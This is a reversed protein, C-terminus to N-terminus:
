ITFNISPRLFKGNSHRVSGYSEKLPCGCAGTMWSTDKIQPKNVELQYQLRELPLFTGEWLLSGATHEQMAAWKAAEDTVKNGKAIKDEGKQHGRCHTVSVKKPLLVADLLVIIDHAHKIPSGTTILMRREKWIGAHTHLILFTYKSDIYINVRQDKSLKLVKTLAVLEAFQANPNPPLPGSQLTGFETVVAFGAHRVGNKVFSSSYNYLELDPDELPQDTL